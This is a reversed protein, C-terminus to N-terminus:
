SVDCGACIDWSMVAFEYLGILSAFRCACVHCVGSHDRLWIRTMDVRMYLRCVHVHARNARGSRCSRMRKAQLCCIANRSPWPLNKFLKLFFNTGSGATEFILYCLYVEFDQAERM